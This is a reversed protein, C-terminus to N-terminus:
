IHGAYCLKAAQRDGKRALRAQPDTRSEHTENSRKEGHWNV